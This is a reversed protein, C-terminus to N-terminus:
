EPRAKLGQKAKKEVTDVILETRSMETERTCSRFLVNEKSNFVHIHSYFHISAFLNTGKAQQKIHSLRSTQYSM